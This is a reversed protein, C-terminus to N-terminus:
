TKAPQQSSLRREHRRHAFSFAGFLGTLAVLVVGSAVGTGALRNIVRANNIEISAQQKFDAGFVLLRHAIQREGQSTMRSEVYESHVAATMLKPTTRIHWPSYSRVYRRCASATKNILSDTCVLLDTAPDSSVVVSEYGDVQEPPDDIWDPRSGRDIMPNFDASPSEQVIQNGADLTNTPHLINTPHPEAAEQDSENPANAPFGETESV